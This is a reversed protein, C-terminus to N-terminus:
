HIKGPCLLGSLWNEPLSTVDHPGLDSIEIENLFRLGSFFQGKLL